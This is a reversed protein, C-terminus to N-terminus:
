QGLRRGRAGGVPVPVGIPASKTYDNQRTALHGLKLSTQKSAPRTKRNDENEGRIERKEYGEEREKLGHGECQAPPCTDSM